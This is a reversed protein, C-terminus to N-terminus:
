RWVRSEMGFDLVTKLVCIEFHISVELTNTRKYTGCEKAAVRLVSSRGPLIVDPIFLNPCVFPIM